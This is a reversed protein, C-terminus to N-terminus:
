QKNNNYNKIILGNILCKKKEVASRGRREAAHVAGGFLSGPLACVADTIFMVEIDPIVLVVCCWKLYLTLLAAAIWSLM